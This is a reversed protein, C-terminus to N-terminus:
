QRRGKKSAYVELLKTLSDLFDAFKELGTALLETLEVDSAVGSVVAAGLSAAVKDM